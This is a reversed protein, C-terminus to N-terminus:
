PVFPIKKNHIPRRRRVWAYDMTFYESRRPSEVWERWTGRGAAQEDHVMMNEEKENHRKKGSSAEMLKKRLLHDDDDAFSKKVAAEEQLNLKRPLSPLTFHEQHVASNGYQQLPKQRIVQGSATRSCPALLFSVVVALAALLNLLEM